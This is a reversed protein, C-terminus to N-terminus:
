FNFDDATLVIEGKLVLKFDAIKDGDVDGYVYTYGGQDLYHVEGSSGNFGGTGDFQLGGIGSFDIKDGDAQSFDDIYDRHGQETGIAHADNFVFTDKGSGGYFQQVGTGAILTDDGANGAAWGNAAGLKITDDFASGSVAEISKTTEVNGFGDDAIQNKSKTLDVKVGHEGIDTSWYFSVADTGGGGDYSDKGALGHFENNQGDGVFTDNKSTGDVDQINKVTDKNGFGDIVYGKDLRADIGATGGYVADRDYRITNEGGGGDIMDKGKLGMFSEDAASGTMRDNYVSGRLEDIGSAKDKDGWSDIIRGTALNANIGHKDDTFYYTNEYSLTDFGSGGKYIDNGESGGAFGGHKGFFVTDNGHNTGVGMNDEVTDSGYIKDNGASLTGLFDFVNPHNALTSTVSKADYKGGTVSLLTGDGDDFVVSTITGAKFADGKHKLGSGTLVIRDGDKDEYVAETASSSALKLSADDYIDQLQTFQPLANGFKFVAM